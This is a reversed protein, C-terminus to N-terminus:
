AVNVTIKGINTFHTSNIKINATDGAELGLATFKITGAGTADTTVKAKPLYGADCELRYTSSKGVATDDNNWKMTFPIEVTGNPAVTATSADAYYFWKKYYLGDNPITDDDVRGALTTNNLLIPDKKCLVEIRCDDFSGTDFPMFVVLANSNDTLSRWRFSTSIKENKTLAFRNRWVTPFGQNDTMIDIISYDVLEDLGTMGDSFIYSRGKYIAGKEEGPFDPIYVGNARLDLRGSSNIDFDALTNPHNSLYVLADAWPQTGYADLESDFGEQVSDFVALSIYNSTVDVAYRRITDVNYISYLGTELAM